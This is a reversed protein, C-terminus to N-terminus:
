RSEKQVVRAVIEPREGFPMAELRRRAAEQDLGSARLTQYVDRVLAEIEAPDIGEFPRTPQDPHEAVDLWIREVPVTRELLGLLARLAATDPGLRAAVATVLPHDRNILYDTRAAGARAEWLAAPASTATSRGAPRGKRRYVEVARERTLRAIRVFDERLSGPPRARSKRVDIDWAADLASPIDVRIRALRYHEDKQFGLGLWHGAVLIRDNRYVYFGQQANWGGPGAASTYEDTSLRSRHPLIFPEIAVPHGHHRLSEGPLYQTDRHRSLFPDWPLVPQGNVFLQLRGRGELFRHFVMGLHKEVTDTMALFRKHARADTRASGGALRDLQEWLVMTGHPLQQLPELLPESGPHPDHLLRWEGTQGVYDLDWRRVVVAGGARRTAVTLRRCQSFSATKLGLGFRGLDHAARADLPGRGGPRMAEVLEPATMGTGDDLFSVSSHEGNWQFDLRITRAQASIANDVIDAAAAQPTYGFARLSEILASAHPEARDYRPAPSAAPRTM